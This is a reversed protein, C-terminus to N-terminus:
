CSKHQNNYSNSFVKPLDSISEHNAGPSKTPELQHWGRLFDQVYKRSPDVIRFGTINIAGYEKVENEWQDDMVLGSLLYHYIRKGLTINRVHAVVIEKAMTTSCDLVIYKHSWRDIVELAHIFDLAQSVNSIRRVVDVRFLESGPQLGQYIQQLRLLGRTFSTVCDKSIYTLLEKIRM